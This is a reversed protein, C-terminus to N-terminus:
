SALRKEITLLAAKFVKDFDECNYAIFKGMKVTRVQGRSAIDRIKTHSAGYVTSLTKVTAWQREGERKSGKALTKIM